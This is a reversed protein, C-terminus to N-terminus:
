KEGNGHGDDGGDLSSAWAAEGKGGGEQERSVASRM